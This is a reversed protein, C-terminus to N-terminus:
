IRAHPTDTHGSGSDNTQGDDRTGPQSYHDASGPLNALIANGGVHDPSISTNVIYRIPADTVECIATLVADSTGAAGTDVLFIGEKGAQMAINGGAGVIM